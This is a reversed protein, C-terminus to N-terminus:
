PWHRVLFKPAAGSGTWVSIPTADSAKGSIITSVSTVAIVGSHRETAALQTAAIDHDEVSRASSTAEVWVSVIIGFTPVPKRFLDHELLSGSRSSSNLFTM